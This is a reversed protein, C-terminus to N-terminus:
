NLKERERIDKINYYSALGFILGLVIFYGVGLSLVIILLIKIIQLILVNTKM